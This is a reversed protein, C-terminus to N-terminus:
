VVVCWISFFADFLFLLYGLRDNFSIIFFYGKELEGWNLFGFCVFCVECGQGVWVGERTVTKCVLVLLRM